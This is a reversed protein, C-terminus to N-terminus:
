SKTLSRLFLMEGLKLKMPWSSSNSCCSLSLGQLPPSQLQALSPRRRHMLGSGTRWDRIGIGDELRDEEDEDVDDADEQSCVGSVDELFLSNLKVTSLQPHAHLFIGCSETHILKLWDSPTCNTNYQPIARRTSHSSFRNVSITQVRVIITFIGPAQSYVKCSSM